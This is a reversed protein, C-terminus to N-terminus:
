IWGKKTGRNAVLVALQRTLYDYGRKSWENKNSGDIILTTGLRAKEVIYTTGPCKIKTIETGAKFKIWPFTVETVEYLIKRGARKKKAVTKLQLRNGLRRCSFRGIGKSGTKPRGFIPSYAEETKITTAIRMWYKQVEEFSMGIGNDIIHIEPEGSDKEFIKITVEVADADYSNKVLEILAYHVTEVLKEGIENLLASDVSFILNEM